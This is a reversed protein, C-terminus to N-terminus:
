KMIYLVTNKGGLLSNAVNGLGDQGIFKDLNLVMVMRQGKILDQLNENLPEASKSLINRAENETSGSFFQMDNSVGFYYSIGGGTYYYSDKEWNLIKSGAPCSQKWYDVDDLFTKSKLQACMQMEPTENNVNPLVVTVDGDISKIINDMDIATNMGALIAQFTKNSHLLKIFQKGDVNMFVGLVAKSSMNGTYKGTIPRFINRSAKLEKDIQANYSFTEGYVVFEGGENSSFEAAIMVQSMDANKPAGITFPAVFKEPLAAAQAVFAVPAKISDLRDFMPTGKIGKEADQALLKVITQKTEPQQVPLSPGMVLLTSNSFGAVWSDKIVTFQYDKYKSTAKCYGKQSMGDFWKALKDDDAIKASLGVNGDITEFIYLKASLDLGCEAFDDIQVLDKVADNNDGDLLAQADVAVLATSNEPIANLYDESSCSSLVALMVMVLCAAVSKVGIKKM